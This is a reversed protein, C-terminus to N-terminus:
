RYSKGVEFSRRLDDSATPRRYVQELWFRVYTSGTYDLFDWSKSSHWKLPHSDDRTRRVTADRERVTEDLRVAQESLQLMEAAVEEGKAQVEM